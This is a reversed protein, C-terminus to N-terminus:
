RILLPCRAPLRDTGSRFPVCADDRHYTGDFGGKYALLCPLGHTSLLLFLLYVALLLLPAGTPVPLCTM